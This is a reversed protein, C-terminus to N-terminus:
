SVVNLPLANLSWIAQQHTLIHAHVNIYFTNELVWFKDSYIWACGGGGWGCGVKPAADSARKGWFGVSGAMVRRRAAAISGLCVRALRCVAGARRASSVGTTTSESFDSESVVRRLMTKRIVRSIFRDPLLKNGESEPPARGKPPIPCNEQYVEPLCDNCSSRRTQARSTSGALRPFM